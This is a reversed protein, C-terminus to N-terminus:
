YSQITDLTCTDVQMPAQRTSMAKHEYEVVEKDFLTPDFDKRLVENVPPDITPDKQEPQADSCGICLTALVAAVISYYIWRKM